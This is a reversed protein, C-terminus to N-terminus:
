SRGTWGPGGARRRGSAPIAPWRCGRRCSRGPRRLKKRRSALSLGSGTEQLLYRLATGPQWSVLPVPVDVTEGPDVAVKAFGALQSTNNLRVDVMRKVGAQRLAGFFSEATRQTFGITYVEM